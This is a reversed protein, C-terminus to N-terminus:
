DVTRVNDRRAAIDLQKKLELEAEEATKATGSQTVSYVLNAKYLWIKLRPKYEIFGHLGKHHIM